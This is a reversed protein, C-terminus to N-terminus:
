KEIEVGHNHERNDQRKLLQVSSWLLYVDGSLCKKVQNGTDHQELGHRKLSMQMLTM